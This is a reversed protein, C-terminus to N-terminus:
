IRTPHGQRLEPMGTLSVCFRSHCHVTSFNLFLALYYFSVGAWYEDRPKWWWCRGADQSRNTQAESSHPKKNNWRRKSESHYLKPITPALHGPQLLRGWVPVHFSNWLTALSSCFILPSRLSMLLEYLFYLPFWHKILTQFDSSFTRHCYWVGWLEEFIVVSRTTNKM